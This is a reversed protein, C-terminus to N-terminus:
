ETAGLSKLFKIEDETDDVQKKYYTYSTGRSHDRDYEMQKRQQELLNMRYKLPTQENCGSHIGGKKNIDAKNDVLLKVIDRNFTSNTYTHLAYYYGNPNFINADGQLEIGRRIKKEDNSTLYDYITQNKNDITADRINILKNLADPRKSELEFLTTTNGNQGWVHTAFNRVLIDVKNELESIRNALVRNQRQLNVVDQDTGEQHKCLAVLDFAITNGHVQTTYSITIKDEKVDLKHENRNVCDDFVNRFIGFVPHLKKIEEENYKSEYLAGNTHSLYSIDLSKAALTIDLKGARNETSIM